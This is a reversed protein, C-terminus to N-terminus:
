ESVFEGNLVNESSNRGNGEKLIRREIQDTSIVKSMQQNASKRHARLTPHQLM